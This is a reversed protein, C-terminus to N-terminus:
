ANRGETVSSQYHQDQLHAALADCGVELRTLVTLGRTSAHKTCSQCHQDQSSVAAANHGRNSAILVTLGARRTTM